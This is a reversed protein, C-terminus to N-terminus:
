TLEIVEAERVDELKEIQHVLTSGARDAEVTMQVDLYGKEEAPFAKLGLIDFQCRRTVGLVRVLAGETKKVRLQLTFKSV